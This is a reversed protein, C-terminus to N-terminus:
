PTFEVYNKVKKILTGDMANIYVVSGLNKPTFKWAVGYKESIQVICLEVSKMKKLEPYLEVCEGLSIIDDLNEHVKINDIYVGRIQKTEGKKSVIISFVGEDVSIGNWLQRLIYIDSENSSSDYTELCYEFSQIGFIGRVSILALLADKENLVIQNSFKGSIQRLMGNVLNYDFKVMKENMDEIEEKSFDPFNERIDYSLKTRTKIELLNNRSFDSKMSKLILQWFLTVIIAVMLICTVVIFNKKNKM